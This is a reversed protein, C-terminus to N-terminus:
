NFCTSVQLNQNGGLIPISSSLSQDEAVFRHTRFAAPKPLLSCLPKLFSVIYHYPCCACMCIYIYICMFMCLGSYVLWDFKHTRSRKLLLKCCAFVVCSRQRSRVEVHVTLKERFSRRLRTKTVEM